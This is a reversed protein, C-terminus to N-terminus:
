YIKNQLSGHWVTVVVVDSLMLSQYVSIISKQCLYSVQRAELLAAAFWVSFQLLPHCIQMAISFTAMM